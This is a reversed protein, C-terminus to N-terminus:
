LAEVPEVIFASGKGKGQSEARINWGHAEAILKARPLNLGYGGKRRKHDETTFPKFVNELNEATIGKGADAIILKEERGEGDSAITVTGGQESFAIANDVLIEILKNLYKPDASRLMEGNLRNIVQIGASEIENKHQELIKSVVRNISVSELELHLESGAVEFYSLVARVFDNLREFGKEAIDLLESNEKSIEARDIINTAGIWNLPTNMEHSLYRLFTLKEQDLSALKRNARELQRTRDAVMEELCDRHRKLDLHTRVRAKVVAPIFPKRIYDAAGLEFGKTERETEEEATIFIIPIDRAQPDAKLRRCVEYGDMEPMNVDLCILDFPTGNQRSEEVARIAQQGSAASDCEAMTQMIVQLKARSVLEDDVVLIRM